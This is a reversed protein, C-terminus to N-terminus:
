SRSGQEDAARQLAALLPALRAHKLKMSARNVVLRATSEWITEVEVLGNEKLTRGTSVLDVICDAMGVLPALEMSGYLKIIDVALGKSLFHAEAVRPYKTAVRVRTGPRDDLGVGKQAAVSMRCYGVRMDVPQYLEDPYEALVDLGAVGMDAGGHEVYVPVDAARVVLFRDGNPSEFLLKRGPDDLGRPDLGAAVFLPLTDDLLKGKALAVTIPTQTNM